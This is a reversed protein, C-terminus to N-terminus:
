EACDFCTTAIPLAALRKEAIAESCSECIGYSGADFRALAKEIQHIEALEARELDALVEESERETAQEAFDAAVPARRQQELREVQATLTELRARLARAVEDHSKPATM